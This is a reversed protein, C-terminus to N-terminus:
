QKKREKKRKLLCFYSLIGERLEEKRQKKNGDWPPKVRRFNTRAMGMKVKLAGTLCYLGM